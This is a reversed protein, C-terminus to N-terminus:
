VEMDRRNREDKQQKCQREAPKKKQVANSM